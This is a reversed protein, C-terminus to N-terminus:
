DCFRNKSLKIESDYSSPGGGTSPYLSLVWIDQMAARAQLLGASYPSDSGFVVTGGGTGCGIVTQLIAFEVLSDPMRGKVRKEHPDFYERDSVNLEEGDMEVSINGRLSGAKGNGCAIFDTGGPHIINATTHVEYSSDEALKKVNGWIEGRMLHIMTRFRVHAELSHEGLQKLVVVSDPYIRLYSNNLFLDVASKSDTMILSGASIKQNVKLISWSENQGLMVKGKIRRVKANAEDFGGPLHETVVKPVPGLSQRTREGLSTCGTLLALLCVVLVFSKM